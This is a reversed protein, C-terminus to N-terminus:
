ACRHTLADSPGCARAVVGVCGAVRSCISWAGCLRDRRRSTDSISHILPTLSEHRSSSGRGHGLGTRHLLVRNGLDDGGGHDAGGDLEVVVVAIGDCGGAIEASNEERGRRLGIRRQARHVREQREGDREEGAREAGHQEAVEAVLDAALGRQDDGQHRHTDGREDDAQQWAILLQAGQGDDDQADAAGALAHTEGAFPGTGRQDSGLVGRGVLAGQVAGERVEAGRDAEEAGVAQVQQEVGRESGRGHLGPAPTDREQAGCHEDDDAQVHPQAHGLGRDEALCDLLVAHHLVRQARQQRVPLFHKEAGEGHADCVRQEVHQARPRQAVGDLDQLWGEALVCVQGHLQNAIKM